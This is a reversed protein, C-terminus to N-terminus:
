GIPLGKFLTKWGDVEIKKKLLVDEKYFPIVKIM